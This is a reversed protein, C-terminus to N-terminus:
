RKIVVDVKGGIKKYDSIFNPYSKKIAEGYTIEIEDSAMIGLVASSMVTRHDNGGDILGGTASKGEIILSNNLYSASVGVSKLSNIIALIRDSEKLKLRDVNKIVTKGSAYSAVVSVIQILDPVDEMDVTIGKLKNKSVSIIDGNIEVKAGFDKLIELIKRDGQYSNANLGKVTVNGAIAGACLIFASGSWDGEVTLTDVKKTYGGKIKYGTETENVEVGFEKLVGITIDVYPKSVLRGSIIIESDGDLYSLALLLGSVYQSSISGDIYYKGPKLKGNVKYGDIEAGNSNLSNVLEGIPRELLRKSGIFTAKVGLACVVPILFRLSSGSENCDIVVEETPLSGMKISVEGDAQRATANLAKLANLTVLADVSEGVNKIKVENKSLFSAILIRHAFSKSSPANIEGSIKSPSVILNYREM